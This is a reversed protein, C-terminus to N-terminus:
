KNLLDLQQQFGEVLEMEKEFDFLCLKRITYYYYWYDKLASLYRNQATYMANYADNIAMVNVKGLSFLQQTAQYAHQSITDARAASYLEMKKINFENAKKSVEIMLLERIKKNEKETIEKNLTARQINRKNEKWDILPINMSLKFSQQNLLDQFAESFEDQSQNLGLGASVSFAYKERKAALEQKEVLLLKRKLDHSDPNNKLAYRQAITADIHTLQVKEPAICTIESNLPLELFECIDLRANELENKSQQIKITANVQKLELNLLDDRSIAGIKARREGINKLSDANSSNLRAIALNQQAVLLTFFLNVAEISIEERQEIFELKAQKFELPEIRANWKYANLQSFDQYYSINLPISTFDTYNSYSESFQQSRTLSSYVSLSGGSFGIPQSMGLKYYSSVKQIEVPEYMMLESNYVETISRSYSAPTLQLSFQPLLQMKFDTYDLEELLYEYKAKFIDFSTKQAREVTQHLTLKIPQARGPGNFMILIFACVFPLYLLSKM